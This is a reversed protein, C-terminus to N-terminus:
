AAPQRLRPFGPGPPHLNKYVVVTTGPGSRVSGPIEAIKTFMPLSDRALLEHLQKAGDIKPHQRKAIEWSTASRYVDYDLTRTVVYDSVAMTGLHAVLYDRLITYGEKPMLIYAETYIVAGRPLHETVWSAVRYAGTEKQFYRAVWEEHARRVLPAQGVVLVAALAAGAVLRGRGPAHLVLDVVRLASVLLIPVVPLLYRGYAPILRGDVLQYGAILSYAFFGVSFVDALLRPRRVEDAYRTVLRVLGLVLGACCLLYTGWGLVSQALTRNSFAINSLARAVFTLVGRPAGETVRGIGFLRSWTLQAVEAIRRELLGPHAVFCPNVLAFTGLFVGGMVAGCRVNHAVVRHVGVDRVGRAFPRNYALAIVPLLFVGNYKTAMAAGAFLSALVLDRDSGPLTESREYLRVTFFFSAMMLALQPLDAHIETSWRLFEPTAALLLAAVLGHLPAYLRRALAYLLLLVAAGSGVQVLTAWVVIAHESVPVFTQLVLLPVAVLIFYLQGYPYPDCSFAPAGAPLSILSRTRVLFQVQECLNHEDFSFVWLEDFGGPKVAILPLNLLVYAAVVVAIGWRGTLAELGERHPGQV